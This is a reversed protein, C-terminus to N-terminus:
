FNIEIGTWLSSEKQEDVHTVSNVMEYGAKLYVDDEIRVEGEFGFHERSLGGSAEVDDFSKRYRVAGSVKSAPFAAGVEFATRGSVLNSDPGSSLTSLPTLSSGSTASSLAAIDSVPRAAGGDSHVVSSGGLGNWDNMQFEGWVRIKGVNASIGLETTRSPSSIDAIFFDSNGSHESSVRFRTNVSNGSNVEHTARAEFVEGKDSKSDSFYYRQRGNSVVVAEEYRSDESDTGSSLKETPSQGYFYFNSFSDAMSFANESQWGTLAHERKTEDPSDALLNWRRSPFSFIFPSGSSPVLLSGESKVDPYISSLSPEQAFAPCSFLLALFVATAAVAYGRFM